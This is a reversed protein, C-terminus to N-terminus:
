EFMASAMVSTAFSPTTHFGEGELAGGGGCLGGGGGCLGGGGGCAVGAGSEDGAAGIQEVEHLQLDLGRRVEDVDVAEGEVFDFVGGIAAEADAGEDAIGVESGMVADAAVVGDEGAGEDGSGAALEAVHGGGCAIEELAGAAGVKVIGVLWAVFAGGAGAAGCEVTEAALVGDDADASGADGGVGAVHGDGHADEVGGDVGDLGVGGGALDGDEVEMAEGAGLGLEIGDEGRSFQDGGDGEGRGNFAPVDIQFDAVAGGVGEGEDGNGGDDTWVAGAANGDAADCMFGPADFGGFGGDGATGFGEGGGEEGSGPGGGVVGEFELEDFAGEGGDEVVDFAVVRLAYFIARSRLRKDSGWTCTGPLVIPVGAQRDASEGGGLVM